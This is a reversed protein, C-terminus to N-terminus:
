LTLLMTYVYLVFSFQNAIGCTYVHVHVLLELSWKGSRQLIESVLSEEGAGSAHLESDGEDETSSWGGRDEDDSSGEGEEEDREGKLIEAKFVSPYRVQFLKLLHQATYNVPLNAVYLRMSKTDYFSSLSALLAQIPTTGDRSAALVDSSHFKSKEFKAKREQQEQLSWEELHEMIKLAAAYNQSNISTMFPTDGEANRSSLQVPIFYIKTLTSMCSVYVYILTGGLRFQLYIPFVHNPHVWMLAM